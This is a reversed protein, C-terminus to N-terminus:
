RGEYVGPEATISKGDLAKALAAIENDIPGLEANVAKIETRLEAIRPNQTLADLEERLRDRREALPKRKAQAEEFM